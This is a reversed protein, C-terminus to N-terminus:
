AGKLWLGGLMLGGGGTAAMWFPLWAPFWFFGILTAAFMAAGIWFYRTMRWIGITAYILGLLLGPFAFYPQPANVRFVFCVATAFAAIALSGALARWAGAQRADGSGKGYARGTMMVSAGVGVLDLPVWVWVWLGPPLVGMGVYAVAWILGWLMLIPGGIRYGKLEHSRGTTREIESLSAAAETRSISM